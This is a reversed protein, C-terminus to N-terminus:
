AAGGGGPGSGGVVVGVRARARRRWRRPDAELDLWAGIRRADHAGAFAVGRALAAPAIARPFLLWLRGSGPKWAWRLGEDEWAAGGGAVACASIWAAQSRECDAVTAAGATV